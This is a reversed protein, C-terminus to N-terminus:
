AHELDVRARRRPDGRVVLGDGVRDDLPEALVALRADRRRGDRLHAGDPGVEAQGLVLDGGARVRGGRHGARRRGDVRLVLGEASVRLLWLSMVWTAEALRSRSAGAEREARGALRIALIEITATTSARSTSVSACDMEAFHHSATAKRATARTAT